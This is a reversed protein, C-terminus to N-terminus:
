LSWDLRLYLQRGLADALGSIYGTFGAEPPEEDLLNVAGVSIRYQEDGGLQLSYQADFVTWSDIERNFLDDDISDTYRMILSASHNEYDWNLEATDRFEPTPVGTNFFNRSGVGEVLTDSNASVAVKYRNIWSLSNSLSLQHGNGLDMQYSARFDVGDTETTNANFYGVNVSLLEGFEDRIVRPGNPDANIVQQANEQSVQDEFEFSWYDLSLTLGALAEWTVGFNYNTSEEAELEPNGVINIVRFTGGADLPDLPDVLQGVASTVGTNVSQSLAPARFATSASARMSLTETPHWNIGLKPDVNSFNDYDEYRLALQMDLTQHFPFYFETFLANVTRSGSGATQKGIFGWRGQETNPSWANSQKERRHQGGIAIGASGGPLEFLNGSIVFELIQYENTVSSPNSSLLNYLTRPDNNNQDAGFPSFYVCNGEGAVESDAPAGFPSLQCDPGGFGNLANQLLLIDTDPTNSDATERSWVMDATYSWNDFLSGSAGFVLHTGSIDVTDDKYDANTGLVRGNWEVDVGFPNFPNDGPVTLTARSIPLSGIGSRVSDQLYYRGEFFLEHNDNLQLNGTAHSLWVETGPQIPNRAQYSFRCSGQPFPDTGTYIGGTAPDTCHPDAIAVRSSGSAASLTDYLQSYNIPGDVGNDIIVDGGTATQPRQSLTINGPQSLGSTNAINTVDRDGNQLNEKIEYSSSFVGHFIDNGGGLKLQFIKAPANDIATYQFSATAGEYDTDTIINMAGAIADSGYIASAGDLVTEVRDVAVTPVLSVLNVYSNGRNDVETSVVRRGNLLVLTSAPGLGRLNASRAARNDAVGGLLDQVGGVSSFNATNLTLLDDLGVQGSRAIADKDIISIPSSMDAQQPRKVYSGTVVVEELETSGKAGEATVGLAPVAIATTAALCEVLKLRRFHQKIKM